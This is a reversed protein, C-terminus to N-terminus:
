GELDDEDLLDAIDVICEKGVKNDEICVGEIKLIKLKVESGGFSYGGVRGDKYIVRHCPIAVPDKNNKLIMAVERPTIGLLKAISSYTTVKGIPILQVLTYIIEKITEKTLDSIM